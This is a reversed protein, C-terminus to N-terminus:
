REEDVSGWFCKNYWNQNNSTEQTETNIVYNHIKLIYNNMNEFRHVQLPITHTNEQWNNPLWNNSM